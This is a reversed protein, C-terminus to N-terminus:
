ALHLLEDQFSEQATKWGLCKRPRQNILRVAQDVEKQTVQSFLTGKPFFERLLGNHNENSGRQWSAYPDAFYVTLGLDKELADSKSFEKGRDVTTTKFVQNPFCAHLTQVAGNLNKATRSPILVAQYFRTKREIFTALCEKAKGRPSVITDLEWHGFIERANIEEPREQITHTVVVKGRTEVPKKRKGKQRLAKKYDAGLRGSYLWRYITKFSIEHCTMAIQEPSWTATLGETIRQALSETFKYSLGKNRRSRTMKEAQSASYSGDASQNRKLERSITSRHCGFYRAIETQTKGIDRLTQAQIRQEITLHYYGM